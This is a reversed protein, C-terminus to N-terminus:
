RPAARWRSIREAAQECEALTPVLAARVFGAGAPGFFEGPAVVIGEELLADATGAPAELWLFFTADGGANRLGAAELAPLLSTASPAIAPACRRSTSGRRGVGRGGRAPHVGPAGDRRQAPLAQARRHPGPRGRRIGVPLGADVLAQLAHQVVLVNTLDPVQLASGPADDGFYVESYAEDSALVFGRSRALEAAREFLEPPATAATPNNPYNLWLIALGEAPLADLDPLFGNAALLPLEIVERGAFLASREPVPYGPTTVAVAGPGAVQALSFIAEKSGLTPVVQAGPDLAAGFRRQM